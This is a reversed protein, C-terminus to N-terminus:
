EVVPLRLKSVTQKAVQLFDRVAPRELSRSPIIVGSDDARGADGINLAEIGFTRFLSQFGSSASMLFPSRRLLLLANMMTDVRAAFDRSQRGLSGPGADDEYGPSIWRHALMEELSVLEHQRLPHAQDSYIFTAQRVLPQFEVKVLPSYRTSFTGFVLDYIGNRLGELRVGEDAIEVHVVVQPHTLAFERTVEPLITLGWLDGSAIRIAAKARGQLQEIEERAEDLAPLVRVARSYLASGYPSLSVGAGNRVFLPVGYSDELKQIARSLAPQSINLHKAAASISHRSAVEVFQRLERM